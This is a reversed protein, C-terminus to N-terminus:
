SRAPCDARECRGTGRAQYAGCVACRVMDEVAVSDGGDGPKARVREKPPTDGRALYKFGFWVAAVVLVLLLIKSFSIGLM